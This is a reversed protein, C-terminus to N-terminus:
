LFTQKGFPVFGAKELLSHRREWLSIWINANLIIDDKLYEKIKYLIESVLSADEIGLEM